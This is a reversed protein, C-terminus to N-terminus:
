YEGHLLRNAQWSRITLNRTQMSGTIREICVGLQLRGDFGKGLSFIVFVM